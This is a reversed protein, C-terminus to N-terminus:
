ITIGYGKFQKEPDNCVFNGYWVATAFQNDSGEKQTLIRGGKGLWEYGNTMQAFAFDNTNLLFLKKDPMSGITTLMLQKDGLQIGLGTYGGVWQLATMTNFRRDDKVNTFYKLMARPSVVLINPDAQYQYKQEMLYDLLIEEDLEANVYKVNSALYPYTLRSLNWINLYRTVTSENKGDTNSSMNTANSVLNQLGNIELCSASTTNGSLYAKSRLVYDNQAITGGSVTESWVVTGRTTDGTKKSGKTHSYATLEYNTGDYTSRDIFSSESTYDLTAVEYKQGDIVHQTDFFGEGTMDYATSEGTGTVDSDTWQCVLGTGEGVIQREFDNKANNMMDDFSDSVIDVFSGEGQQAAKIVPGSLSFYANLYKIQEYGQKGKQPVSSVFDGGEAFAGVGGARQTKFARIIRQGKYDIQNSSRQILASFTPDNFVTDTLGPLYVDKLLGDYSTTNSLDSLVTSTTTAANTAM